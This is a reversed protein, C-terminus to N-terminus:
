LYDSAAPFWEPLVFSPIQLECLQILCAKKITIDHLSCAATCISEIYQEHHPRHQAAKPDFPEVTSAQCIHIVKVSLQMAVYDGCTQAHM